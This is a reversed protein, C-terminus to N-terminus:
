KRREPMNLKARLPAEFKRVSDVHACACCFCDNCGCKNRTSVLAHRRCEEPSLAQAQKIQERYFPTM